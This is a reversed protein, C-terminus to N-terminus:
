TTANNVVLFTLTILIITLKQHARRVNAYKKQEKFLRQSIIDCGFDDKRRKCPVQAIHCFSDIAIIYRIFQGLINAIKAQAIV